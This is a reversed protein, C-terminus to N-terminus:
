VTADAQSCWTVFERLRGVKEARATREELRARLKAVEDDCLGDAPNSM